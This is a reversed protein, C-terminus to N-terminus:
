VGVKPGPCQLPQDTQAVETLQPVKDGMFSAVLGAKGAATVNYFQWCNAQPNQDYTFCVMPTKDPAQVEIWSGYECPQDTFAWIVKHGPLYEEQGWVQGAVGYTLTKGLAYAEFEAATLPPGLAPGPLAPGLPEALAPLPLLGLLILVHRNM